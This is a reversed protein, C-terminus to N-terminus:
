VSAILSAAVVQYLYGAQQQVGPAGTLRQKGIETVWCKVM